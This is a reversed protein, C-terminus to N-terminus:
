RVGEAIMSYKNAKRLAVRAVCDSYVLVDRGSARRYEDAREKYQVHLSQYKIFLRKTEDLNIWDNPAPALYDIQGKLNKSISAEYVM